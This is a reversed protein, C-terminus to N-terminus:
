LMSPFAIFSFIYVLMCTCLLLSAQVNYVIYTLSIYMYKIIISVHVHIYM